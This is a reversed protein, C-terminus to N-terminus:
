EKETLLEDDVIHANDTKEPLRFYIERGTPDPFETLVADVTEGNERFMKVPVSLGDPRVASYATPEGLSNPDITLSRPDFSETFLQPNMATGLTYVIPGRMLVVRGQQSNRGRIFRWAMPMEIEVVDGNNWTRNLSFSGGCECPEIELPSDGNVRIRMKEAWRPTRIKLEFSVPKTNSVIMRVFGSNPYDTDQRLEVTSGNVDFEKQADTFLNVCIGGEPTRYFVKEPIEAVARRYNGCCCFTDRYDYVREGTFPTFYRIWRGDPSNAAFLTNYIIREMVDGYQLNGDLRLLSDLLRLLYANACSEGVAGSGNQNYVFHEGESCAGTVLIGGEKKLLEHIMFRSMDLLGEDGDLRYLETQAYCRALMVYVHSWEPHSFDQRWERLTACRVEGHSNGHPTNAAFDLYRKDGTVRYLELMGEPLGATCIQSPDFCPNEPTPFTRLIYDGMVKAADLSEPDSMTRWNRVLGLNIYEQEHLIWNIHDQRNEPEVTWFGIYGDPDRSQLLTRIMSSTREAVEPDGSYRAMLSGADITKGVGYYVYGDPHDSTLRDIRHTFHDLWKENVDLVLFHHYILNTIRRDIEGGLERHRLIVRGLKDAVKPSVVDKDDASIGSLTSFILVWLASITFLLSTRRPKPFRTKEAHIGSYSKRYFYRCHM